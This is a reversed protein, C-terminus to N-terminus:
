VWWDMSFLDPARRPLLDPDTSLDPLGALSDIIVDKEHFSFDLSNVFEDISAREPAGETLKSLEDRTVPDAFTVM